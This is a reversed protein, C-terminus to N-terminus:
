SAFGWIKAASKWMIWDLDGEGQFAPIERVLHLTSRYGEVLSCPPFNSGWMMREVGFAAKAMEYHPPFESMPWAEPRGIIEGLGPVKISTNPWKACELAQRYIEFPAAIEDLSHPRKTPSRALHELCFHTNPFDDLLKKFRASAFNVASGIVSIVMGLEDAAKFLANDLGWDKERRINMRIGSGGRKHFDELKKVRYYDHPDICGVAKFRDGYRTLCELLYENDYNATRQVLIAHSVGNRDMQFNLVEIPEHWAADTHVHTDVIM